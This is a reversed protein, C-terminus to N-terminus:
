PVTGAAKVRAGDDLTRARAVVDEIGFGRVPSSSARDLAGRVEAYVAAASVANKASLSQAADLALGAAERAWPLPAVLDVVRAAAHGARRAHDAGRPASMLRVHFRVWQLDGYGEALRPGALVAAAILALALIQATLRGFPFSRTRGM